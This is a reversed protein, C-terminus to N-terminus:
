SGVPEGTELYTEVLRRFIERSRQDLAALGSLKDDMARVAQRPPSRNLYSGCRLGDVVHGSPQVGGLRRNSATRLSSCSLIMLGDPRRASSIRATVSSRPTDRWASPDHRTFNPWVSTSHLAVTSSFTGGQIFPRPWPQTVASYPMSGREVPSRVRRSAAAPLCDPREKSIWRRIPRENRATTSRLARPSRWIRTSQSTM